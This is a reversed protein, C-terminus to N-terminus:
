SKPMYAALILRPKAQKDIQCLRSIQGSGQRLSDLAYTCLSPHDFEALLAADRTDFAGWLVSLLCVQDGQLYRQFATVRAMNMHMKQRERALRFQQEHIFFVEYWVSKQAQGISFDAYSAARKNCIDIQDDKERYHLYSEHDAYRPTYALRANPVHQLLTQGLEVTLWSKAFARIEPDALYQNARQFDYHEAFFGLLQQANM